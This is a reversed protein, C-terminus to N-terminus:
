QVCWALVLQSFFKLHIDLKVHDYKSLTCLAAATELNLFDIKKIQMHEKFDLEGKGEWKFITEKISWASTLIQILPLDYEANSSRLVREEEESLYKHKVREVKEAYLEIDVGVRNKTSVIAAAFDGCHSISFHYAEDPLFPKRTDAIQILEHPFAPFLEKLLFRGALHQLRKHPHTITRQLPIDALFFSEEEAIHWIALKTAENINQQYVLPM